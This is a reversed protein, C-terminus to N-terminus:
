AFEGLREERFKNRAKIAEELSWYLGVFYQENEINVLVRWKNKIKSINKHGSLSRTMVTKNHNNQSPTCIRLNSKRNDLGNGNIHDVQMLRDNVKMIERHMKRSKSKRVGLIMGLYYQREAYVKGGSRRGYWRYENLRDFDEDDVLAYLGISNLGALAIKM